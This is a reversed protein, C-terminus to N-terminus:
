RGAEAQLWGAVDTHPIPRSVVYGQGFGCGAGSLAEVEQETEIGEAVVHLRLTQALQTITGVIARQEESTTLTDAFSKDLKLVDVPLQRLYSLSSFGTGFDDIAVRVGHERLRALEDTINAEQVLISETIELVLREPPLETAALEDLVRGVFDSTRLQRASVNVSIYPEPEGEQSRPWGGATRISHHLVWTGLPVILGSEEALTIFQGPGLTGREPHQWRVLAEFGVTRRVQDGRSPTWPLAVIPQFELVFSGEAVARELEGRMQLRDSVLTHLSDEYQVMRNRGADKAVGLAIDAQRLLESAVTEGNTMAVGVSARLTVSGRGLVFPEAFCGMVAAVARDIEAQDRVGSLHVAFEDSGLRAVTRGGGDDDAPQVVDHASTAETLRRGVLALVEDGAHHGMTNNVLKFEDLGAIVVGARVGGERAGDVGRQVAGMFVDHNPLGTLADTTARRYLEDQLRRSETVDRLTVVVGDVTPEGHLDRCSAEVLAEGDPRPVRWVDGGQDPGGGRVRGLREHVARASQPAVLQPLARGVLDTTGLLAAASPSAYRINDEDDLILIVDAAHLVLTRFYAESNRRDIETGLAIRQLTLGAEGALVQASEQLTMLLTEDAAVYLTGATDGPRTALGCRLTVEFGDLQKAVPTPLDTTYLLAPAPDGDVPHRASVM